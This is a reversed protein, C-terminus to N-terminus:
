MDQCLKFMMQQNCYKRPDMACAGNLRLVACQLNDGDTITLLLQLLTCYAGVQMTNECHGWCTEWTGGTYKNSGTGATQVSSSRLTQATTHLKYLVTSAKYCLYFVSGRLILTHMRADVARFNIYYRHITYYSNAM